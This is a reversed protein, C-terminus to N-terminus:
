QNILNLIDSASDKINEIVDGNVIAIMTFKRDIDDVVWRIQDTSILVNGGDLKTLKIFKSM